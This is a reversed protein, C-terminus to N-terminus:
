VEEQTGGDVQDSIPQDTIKSLRDFWKKSDVRGNTFRDLSYIIASASFVFFLLLLRPLSLVLAIIALSVVWIQFPLSLALQLSLVEPKGSLALSLCFGLLFSVSVLVILWPQFWIRKVRRFAVTSLCVDIFRSFM